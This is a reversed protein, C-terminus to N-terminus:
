KAIIYAVMFTKSPSEKFLNDVSSKSVYTSSYSMNYTKFNSKSVKDVYYTHIASSASTTNWRAVIMYYQTSNNAYTKLTSYSTVKTYSIGMVTLFYGIQYPNSGLYGGACGIEIGLSEYLYTTQALTIDIGKAQALNYGAIVECGSDSLNSYGFKWGSYLSQNTIYGSPQNAINSNYTYNSLYTAQGYALVIAAVNSVAALTLTFAPELIANLKLLANLAAHLINGWVSCEDIVSLSLLERVSFLEDDLSFVVDVDGDEDYYVSGYLTDIIPEDDDVMYATLTVNSTSIDCTVSYEIEEYEDYHIEDELVSIKDVNSSSAYDIRKTATFTYVNDVVSSEVNEFDAFLNENDITMDTASITRIKSVEISSDKKYSSYFVTVFLLVIGLM